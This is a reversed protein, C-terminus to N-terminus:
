LQKNHCFNLPFHQNEHYTEFSYGKNKLGKIIAPVATVSQPHIDHMLVVEIDETAHSLVNEIIQPVSQDLPLATLKWDNSDITWDWVHFGSQLVQNQLDGTLGPKSGYPPRTLTPGVGIIHNVINQTAKMEEVYQKQVYLTKYDHTMSHLGVYNGETYERKVENPYQQAHPGIVFFTAIVHNDHLIDLLNRTYKGPGDDFTLYVVKRRQGNYQTPIIKQMFIASQGSVLQVVHSFSPSVFRTYLAHGIWSIGWCLLLILFIRKFFTRM